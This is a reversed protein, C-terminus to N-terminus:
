LFVNWLMMTLVTLPTCAMSIGLAVCLRANRRDVKGMQRYSIQIRERLVSVRDASAALAREAAQLKVFYAAAEKEIGDSYEQWDRITPEEEDEDLREAIKQALIEDEDWVPEADEVLPPAEGLGIGLAIAFRHDKSTFQSM